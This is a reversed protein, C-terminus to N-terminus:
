WGAILRCRVWVIWVAEGIDKWYGSLHVAALMAHNDSAVIAAATYQHARTHTTRLGATRSRPARTAQSRGGPDFGGKRYQIMAGRSTTLEHYTPTTKRACLRGYCGVNLHESAPPIVSTGSSLPPTTAHTSAFVRQISSRSTSTPHIQHHLTLCSHHLRLPLAPIVAALAPIFPFPALEVSASAPVLHCLLILPQLRSSPHGSDLPMGHSPQLRSSLSVELMLGAHWKILAPWAM